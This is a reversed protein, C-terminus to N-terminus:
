RTVTATHEVRAPTDLVRDPGVERVPGTVTLAARLPLDGASPGALLELAGPEVVRRLDRGTYAVRDAHLRFVVRARQGPELPVRAFGVLQRVPRAM